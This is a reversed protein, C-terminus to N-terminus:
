LDLHDFIGNLSSVVAEAGAAWLPSEQPNNRDIGIAPVGLQMELKADGVFTIEDGPHKQRIMQIHKIKEGDEAAYIEGFFHLINTRELWEEIHERELGTSIILYYKGYLKELTDIVEPFPEVEKNITVREKSLEEYCQEAKEEDYGPAFLELAKLYAGRFSGGSLDSANNSIEDERIQINFYERLYKLTVEILRDIPRLTGDCDFILIKM